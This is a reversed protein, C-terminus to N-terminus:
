PDIVEGLEALAYAFRMWGGDRIADDMESNFGATDGRKVAHVATTARQRDTDSIRM